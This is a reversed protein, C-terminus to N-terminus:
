NQHLGSVFRISSVINTTANLKNQTIQIAILRGLFSRSAADSKGAFIEMKSVAASIRFPLFAVPPLLRGLASSLIASRREFIFVPLVSSDMM